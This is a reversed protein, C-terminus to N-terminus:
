VTGSMPLSTQVFNAIQQRGIVVPTFPAVHMPAERLATRDSRIAGPNTALTSFRGERHAKIAPGLESM